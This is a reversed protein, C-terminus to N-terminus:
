SMWFQSTPPWPALSALLAFTGFASSEVTEVARRPLRAVTPRWCWRRCRRLSSRPPANGRGNRPDGCESPRDDGGSVVWGDSSVAVCRIPGRHACAISVLSPWWNRRNGPFDNPTALRTLPSDFCPRDPIPLRVLHLGPVENVERGIRSVLLWRYRRWVSDSAAIGAFLRRRRRVPRPPLLVTDGPGVPIAFPLTPGRHAMIASPEVTDIRGAGRRSGRLQPFPGRTAEGPASACGSGGRRADACTKCARRHSGATATRKRFSRAAPSRSRAPSCTTFLAVLATCTPVPTWRTRTTPRNPVMYDPTGMIAGDQTLISTADGDALRPLRALGLDLIKITAPESPEVIRLLNSPKVDRHVLGHDHIYQLGLVAQRVYDCLRPTRPAPRTRECAPEPGRGRRVGDGSFPDIRLPRRLVCRGRRHAAPQGGRDGQLLPPGGRPRRPTRPPHGRGRRPPGYARALSQLGAGQRRRRASRAVPLWNCTGGKGQLLYDVQFGTLWGRLLLDRGLARADAFRHQFDDLVPVNLRVADLLRYRRLEDLLGSVSEVVPQGGPLALRKARSRPWNPM